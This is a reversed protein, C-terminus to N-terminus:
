IRRRRESRPTAAPVDIDLEVERYEGEHWFKLQAKEGRETANILELFTMPTAPTRDNVSVILAGPQIGAMGAMGEVSSVLVGPEEPLELAQRLDDSAAMVTIGLATVVDEDDGLGEFPIDEGAELVAPAVLIAAGTRVAMALADSPRSDVLITEDGNNIIIELAGHYTSDRLEDVIVRNLHGKLSNVVSVLLDHTMPRPAEIDRQAMLIARAEGPGIFIPVINGSEPERLLVVPTGTLPVVGVTALEVPILEDANVALERAQLNSALMLLTLGLISILARAIM